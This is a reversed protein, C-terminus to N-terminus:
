RTCSGVNATKASRDSPLCRGISVAPPPGGTLCVFNPESKVTYGELDPALNEPAYMGCAERGNHPAPLAGAGIRCPISGHLTDGADPKRWHLGFSGYTGFGDIFADHLQGLECHRSAPDCELGDDLPFVGSFRFKGLMWNRSIRELGRADCYGGGVDAHASDSVNESTSSFVANNDRAEGGDFDIDNTAVVTMTGVITEAAANNTNANTLTGFDIALTRGGDRPDAPADGITTQNALVQTTFDGHSSTVDASAAISDVSVIALGRDLTDAFTAGTYVGEALTVTTTLTTTEGVVLNTKGFASDITTNGPDITVDDTPDVATFDDGGDINAYNLLTAEPMTPTAASGQEYTGSATLDYTIVIFNTGDTASTGAAGLTDGALDDIRIGNTFLTSANSTGLPAGGADLDKFTLATADDGRIIQLNFGGAPEEWGVPIQDKLSVDFAGDPASGTNEIVVAVTITGGADINSIADVLPSGALGASTIAGTFANVGRPASWTTGGGTDAPLLGAHDSAVIGKVITLNPQQIPVQVAESRTATTDFTNDDTQQALTTLQLGDATPADGVTMTFLLELTLPSNNTDIRDGFDFEIFNSGADVAVTPINALAADHGPGFAWEGTAPTGAGQTFAPGPTDDADPDGTLFVPLPLFQRIVFDDHEGTQFTYNLKFTVTDGANLNAVPGVVGNKAYTDLAFAGDVVSTAASSDDTIQNGPVLDALPIINGDITVDNSLPDRENLHENNAGATFDDSYSEQVIMRYRITGTTAGTGAGGFTVASGNSSATLTSAPIWWKSASM